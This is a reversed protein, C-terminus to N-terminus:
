FKPKICSVPSIYDIGRVELPDSRVECHSKEVDDVDGSQNPVIDVRELPCVHVVLNLQAQGAQHSQQAAQQEEHRAEAAGQDTDRGAAGGGGGAGGAGQVPVVLAAEAPGLSLAKWTATEVVEQETEGEEQQAEM